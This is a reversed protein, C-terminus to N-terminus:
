FIKFNVEWPGRTLRMTPYSQEVRYLVAIEENTQSLADYLLKAAQGFISFADWGKQPGVSFEQPNGFANRTVIGKNPDFEVKKSTDCLSAAAGLVEVLRKAPFETVKEGPVNYTDHLNASLNHGSLFILLPGNSAGWYGTDTLYVEEIGGSVFKLFSERPHLKVGALADPGQWMIIGYPTSLLLKGNVLLPPAAVPFSKSNFGRFAEPKLIGSFKGLAHQKMGRLAVEGPPITHVRLESDFPSEISKVLLCGQTDLELEVKDEPMAKLCEHLHNLSVFVSTKDVIMDKSAVFGFSSSRYVKADNLRLAIFPSAQADFKDVTALTKLINEKNVISM